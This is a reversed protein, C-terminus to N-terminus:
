GEGEKREAKKMRRRIMWRLLLFVAIFVATLVARTQISFYWPVPQIAYLGPRTKYDWWTYVSSGLFVGAFSWIAINLFDYLKKM